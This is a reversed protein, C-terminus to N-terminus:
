CATKVWLTQGTSLLPRLNTITFGPAMFDAPLVAAGAEDFASAETSSVHGIAIDGALVSVEPQLQVFIAAPIPAGMNIEAERIKTGGLFNSLWGTNDM